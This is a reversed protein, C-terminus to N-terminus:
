YDSHSINYIYYKKLVMNVCIWKNNFLNYIKSPNSEINLRIISLYTDINYEFFIIYM